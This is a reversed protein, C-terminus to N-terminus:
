EWFKNSRFYLKITFCHLIFQSVYKPGEPVQKTRTKERSVEDVPNPLDTEARAYLRIESIEHKENVVALVDKSNVRLYGDSAIYCNKNSIM